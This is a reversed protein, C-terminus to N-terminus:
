EDVEEDGFGVKVGYHSGKAKLYKYIKTALEDANDENHLQRERGIFLWLDNLERKAFNKKITKGCKTIAEEFQVRNM